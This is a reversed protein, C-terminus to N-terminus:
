QIKIVEALLEATIETKKIIDELFVNDYFARNILFKAQNARIEYKKVLYDTLKDKFYNGNILSEKQAIEELVPIMPHNKVLLTKM